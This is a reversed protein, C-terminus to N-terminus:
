SCLIIEDDKQVNIARLALHLAQTASGVGLSFNTGIFKSFRNEFKQLIPGNTLWRQKLSAQVNRRDEDNIWPLFFPIKM